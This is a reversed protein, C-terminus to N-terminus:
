SEGKLVKLLVAQAAEHINSAKRCSPFMEVMMYRFTENKGRALLFWGRDKLINLVHSLELIPPMVPPFITDCEDTVLMPAVESFETDLIWDGIEPVFGVRGMREWIETCQKVMTENIESRRM